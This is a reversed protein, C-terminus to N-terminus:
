AADEWEADDDPCGFGCAQCGAETDEIVAGCDACFWLSDEPGIAWRDAHPTSELWTAEPVLQDLHTITM